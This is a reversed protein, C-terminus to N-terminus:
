EKEKPLRDDLESRKTVDQNADPNELKKITKKLIKRGYFVMFVMTLYLAILFIFTIPEDEFCFSHRSRKASVCGTALGHILRITAFVLLVILLGNVVKFSRIM